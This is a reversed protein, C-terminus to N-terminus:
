PFKYARARRALEQAIREVLALEEPGRTRDPLGVILAHAPDDPIPDPTVDLSPIERVSSVRIQCAGHEADQFKERHLECLDQCEISVSLGDRDQGERRPMFVSKRVNGSANIDSKRIRRLCNAQDAIPAGPTM